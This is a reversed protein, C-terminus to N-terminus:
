LVVKKSRKKLGYIPNNVIDKGYPTLGALTGNSTMQRDPCNDKWWNWALWGIDKQQLFTLFAQYTFDRKPANNRGTGDLDYHCYLTKGKVEEDQKNAIEGFFLPINANITAQIHPIGNYEQWYAHGSFLLNRAPDSDLLEKAIKPFVEISTGCDPADIAIPVQLHKRMQVIALKYAQKFKNLAATRNDTWRYHGLENAFNVILYNQHKKLVALVEPATWWPMLKTNLLSPDRKCTVDNLYVIPIINNSRCKTLLKDLDSVTYSPRTPQGYDRYWQIRVANAGTKVLENLTDRNPFDWDDLVPFNVGRLVIKTGNPHYLHRGKTYFTTRRNKSSSRQPLKGFIPQNLINAAATSAIASGGLLLLQRRSFRVSM